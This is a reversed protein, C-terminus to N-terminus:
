GLIAFYRPVPSRVRASFKVHESCHYIATRVKILVSVLKMFSRKGWGSKFSNLGM